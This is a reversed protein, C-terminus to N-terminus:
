FYSSFLGSPLGLRFLSSLSSVSRLFLIDQPHRSSKAPEPNPGTAPEEFVTSFGGATYFPFTEQGASFKLYM